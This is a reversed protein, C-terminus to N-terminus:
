KENKKITQKAAKTAYERVLESYVACTILILKWPKKRLLEKAEEINSVPKDWVAINGLCLTYNGPKGVIAFSGGGYTEGKIAINDFQETEVTEVEKSTQELIETNKM